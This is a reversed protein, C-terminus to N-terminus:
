VERWMERMEGLGVDWFVKECRKWTGVSEWM